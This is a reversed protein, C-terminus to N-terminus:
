SKYCNEDVSDVFINLFLKVSFKLHTAATGRTSPRTGPPVTCPASVHLGDGPDFLVSDDAGAAPANDRFYTSKVRIVATWLHLVAM